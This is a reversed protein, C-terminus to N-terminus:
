LRAYLRERIRLFQAIDPETAGEASSCLDRDERKISLMRHVASRIGIQVPGLVYDEDLYRGVFSGSEIHISPRSNLRAVVARIDINHRREFVRPGLKHYSDRGTRHHRVCLPIASRDPSKQGVGHPGTHAAEIGTTRGCILCPLTRIWALYLLNRISKMKQSKRILEKPIMQEPSIQRAPPAPTTL